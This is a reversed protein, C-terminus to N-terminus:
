NTQPAPAAQAVVCVCGDVHPGDVGSQWEEDAVAAVSRSRPALPVVLAPPPPSPCRRRWQWEEKAVAAVLRSVRAMSGTDAAISRSLLALPVVLARPPLPALPRGRWLALAARRHALLVSSMSVAEAVEWRRLVDYAIM